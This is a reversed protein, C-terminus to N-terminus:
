SAGKKAKKLSEKTVELFEKFQIKGDKNKDFVKLADQIDQKSPAPLSNKQAMRILAQELEKVDISGSNDKDIEEFASKCMSQFKQDEASADKPQNSAM